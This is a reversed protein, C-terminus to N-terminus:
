CKVREIISKHLRSSECIGAKNYNAVWEGFEIPTVKGSSDINLKGHRIVVIKMFSVKIIAKAYEPNLSAM